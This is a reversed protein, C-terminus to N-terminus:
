SYYQKGPFHFQYFKEAPSSFFDRNGIRWCPFGLAKGLGKDYYDASIKMGVPYIGALFFGTFFRLIM